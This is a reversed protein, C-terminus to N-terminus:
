RVQSREGLETEEAHKVDHEDAKTDAPDENEPQAELLSEVRQHAAKRGEENAYGDLCDRGIDHSEAM